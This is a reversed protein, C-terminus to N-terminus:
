RIPHGAHVRGCVPCGYTHLGRERMRAADRRTLARKPSGDARFHM